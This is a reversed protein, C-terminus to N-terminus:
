TTCAIPAAPHDARGRPRIYIQNRTGNVLGEALSQLSAVTPEATTM